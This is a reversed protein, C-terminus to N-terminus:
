KSQNELIRDLRDVTKSQQVSMAEIFDSQQDALNDMKQALDSIRTDIYDTIREETKSLKEETVASGQLQFQRDDLRTLSSYLFGAVMITLPIFVGVVIKMYLDFNTATSLSNM